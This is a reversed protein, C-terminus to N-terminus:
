FLLTRGFIFMFPFDQLFAEENDTDNWYYGVQNKSNLVNFLGMRTSGKYKFERFIGWKKTKSVYPIFPIPVITKVDPWTLWVDVKVYDTLRKSLRDGEIYVDEGTDADQYVGEIPTYPTGTSYKFTTTLVKDQSLKTDVYMNLMHTIDYSPTYWGEADRRRTHSYTYTLWGEYRDGKLRQFLFEVGSAEGDGKNEYRQEPYDAMDISLQNYDKYFGEVKLM